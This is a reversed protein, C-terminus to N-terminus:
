SSSCARWAYGAALLVMWLVTMGARLVSRRGPEEEPETTAESSPLEPPVHMAGDWDMSSDGPELGASPSWGPSEPRTRRGCHM